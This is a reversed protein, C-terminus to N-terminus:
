LMLQLQAIFSLEGHGKPNSVVDNATDDFPLGHPLYTAQGTLKLRHGHFYYNTGVTYAQLWTPSGAPTGQLHIFECRAFPELHQDIIYGAQLVTAYENTSRGAVSPNGAQINAGSPSLIYYGFNHTTYRDLFEGYITLGHQDAYMADLAMVTQGDHGRESYDTGLGFVLLPDADAVSSMQTYDKWHGMAKFEIRGVLGYNFANYNGNNPYDYFNTNASRMGHNVGGEIRLSDDPDYIFTAAETYDDGNTFIDSAISREAMQQYRTDVIQEHLLPDKMEGVKIFFPTSPFHYKAWAQQLVPVGGLNNSVTPNATGSPKAGSVPINGSNRQTAWNFFYTFDRSFMNGDAGFRLQRIEFGADAEDQPHKASGAFDKRDVYIARAQVQVWPHLTFNGDGSQLLFRGDTYGATFGEATLFQDARLSEAALAGSTASVDAQQKVEAEHRNRQAEKAELEAIRSRIAAIDASISKDDDAAWAVAPALMLGITKALTRNRM